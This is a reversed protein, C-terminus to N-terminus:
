YDDGTSRAHVSPNSVMLLIAAIALVLSLVGLVGLIRQWGAV